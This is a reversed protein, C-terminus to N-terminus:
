GGVSSFREMGSIAIGVLFITLLIWKSRQITRVFRDLDDSESSLVYINFLISLVIFALGLGLGIFIGHVQWGFGAVALPFLKTIPDPIANM